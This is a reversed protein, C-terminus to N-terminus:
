DAHDAGNNSGNGAGTGHGVGNGVAASRDRRFPVVPVAAVEPAALWDTLLQRLRRTPLTRTRLATAVTCHALGLEKALAETTVGRAARAERVALQLHDWAAVEAAKASATAARPPAATKRAVEADEVRVVAQQPWPSCCQV